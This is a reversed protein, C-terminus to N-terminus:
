GEAPFNKWFECFRGWEKAKKIKLKKLNKKLQRKKM